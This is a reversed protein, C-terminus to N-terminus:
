LRHPLMGPQLDLEHNVRQLIAERLWKRLDGLTPFDQPKLMELARVSCALSWSM